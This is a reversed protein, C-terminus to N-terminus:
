KSRNKFVVWCGLSDFLFLSVFHHGDATALGAPTLAHQLPGEGILDETCRRNMSKPLYEKKKDTSCVLPFNPKLLNFHANKRKCFSFFTVQTNSINESHKTQNFDCQLQFQKVQGIFILDVKLHFADSCLAFDDWKSIPHSCFIFRSISWHM